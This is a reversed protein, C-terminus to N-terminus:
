GGHSQLRRYRHMVLGLLVADFLTLGALVLSPAYVLRYLQYLFFVGIVCLAAPYAWLRNKLLGFALVINAVGHVILYLTGFTKVDISLGQAIQMIHTAIFSSPDEALESATVGTAFSSLVATSTLALLMGALMEVIGVVGKVFMGFRLTRFLLKEEPPTLTM